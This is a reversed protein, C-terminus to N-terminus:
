VGERSPQAGARDGPGKLHSPHARALPLRRGLIMRTRTHGAQTPGGGSADFDRLISNGGCAHPHDPVFIGIIVSRCTKGVPTPAALMPTSQATKLLAVLVRRADGSRLERIPDLTPDAARAPAKAPDSAAAPAAPLAVPTRVVASRTTFDRIDQLDLGVARDVLRQRVLGSYAADLRMSVWIGLAALVLAIGLLGSVLFPTRLWLLLRVMGGGWADGARDFAVDTLTKAGRKEGTPVPTYVLEYASRYLSGRLAFELSRAAAFAPFLPVLLAGLAGAGAGAPLTSITRGIGLKDLARSGLFMQALMTLIQTATYFTAFFRLLPAGKGLADGAGAKFLYDIIAASSTGAVVMVAILTLYPAHRFLTISSVREGQRSPSPNPSAPRVSALVLSCSLHLVALLLSVGPASVLAAVREAMVGGGIGGLTGVATIRGFVQKATRPDFAEAMQSWFGSLLITGLAVIHLYVVISLRTPSGQLFMYETTHALASM